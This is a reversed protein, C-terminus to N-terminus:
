KKLFHDVHVTYLTTKVEWFLVKQENKDFAIGDFEENQENQENQDSEKPYSYDVNRMIDEDDFDIHGQYIHRINKAVIKENKKGIDKKLEGIETRVETRITNQFAQFLEKIESITAPLNSDSPLSQTSPPSLHDESRKTPNDMNPNAKPGQPDVIQVCELPDDQARVDLSSFLLFSLILFSFIAKKFIISSIFDYM